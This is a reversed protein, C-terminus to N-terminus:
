IWDMEREIEEIIEPTLGRHKPPATKRILENLQVKQMEVELQQKQLELKRIESEDPAALVKLVTEVLTRIETAPTDENLSDELLRTCLDNTIASPLPNDRPPQQEPIAVSASALTSPDCPTAPPLSPTPETNDTPTLNEPSDM